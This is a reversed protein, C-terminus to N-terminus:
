QYDSATRQPNSLAAVGLAVIALLVILSLWLLPSSFDWFSVPVNAANTTEPITADNTYEIVAPAAAAPATTDIAGPAPYDEAATDAAVVNGTAGYDATLAGGAGTALGQTYAYGTEYGTTDAAAPSAFLLGSVALLGLASIAAGSGVAIRKVAQM